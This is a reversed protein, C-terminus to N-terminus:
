SNKLSGVLDVYQGMADQSPTGELKEWADYKAAGKFDMFGPREGQVDGVTGQKFLAYLRLLTANDPRQSLDQVDNAAQEFRQKLDTM